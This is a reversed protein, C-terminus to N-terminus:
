LLFCLNEFSGVVLGVVPGVGREVIGSWSGLDVSVMWSRESGNVSFYDGTRTPLGVVGRVGEDRPFILIRDSSSTKVDEPEFFVEDRGSLRVCFGVMPLDSLHFLCERAELFFCLIDLVGDFSVPVPVARLLCFEGVYM